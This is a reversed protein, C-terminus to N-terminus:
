SRDGSKDFNTGRNKKALSQSWYVQKTYYWLLKNVPLAGDLSYLMTPLFHVLYIIFINQKMYINTCLIM